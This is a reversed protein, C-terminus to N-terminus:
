LAHAGKASVALPLVRVNPLRRFLADACLSSGEV